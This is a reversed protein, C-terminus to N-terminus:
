IISVNKMYEKWRFDGMVTMKNRRDLLASIVFMDTERVELPNMTFPWVMIGVVKKGLIFPSLCLPLRQAVVKDQVLEFVEVAQPEVLEQIIWYQPIGDNEYDSCHNCRAKVFCSHWSSDDLRRGFHVDISRYSDALKLVYKNKNQLINIEQDPSLSSVSATWPILRDIVSIEEGSLWSRVASDTRLLALLIKSAMVGHKNPVTAEKVNMFLLSFLNKYSEVERLITYISASRHFVHRGPECLSQLIHEAGEATYVHDGSRGDSQGPYPHHMHHKVCLSRENIKRALIDCMYQRPLSPTSIWHLHVPLERGLSATIETSRASEMPKWCHEPFYKKDFFRALSGIVDGDVTEEPLELVSLTARFIDTILDLGAIGTDFNTEVLRLGDASLVGDPRGFVISHDNESFNNEVISEPAGNWCSHDSFLATIKRLYEKPLSPLDDIRQLIKRQAQHLTVIGYELRQIESEAIVLPFFFRGSNVINPHLDKLDGYAKEVRSHLSKIRAAHSHGNFVIKEM